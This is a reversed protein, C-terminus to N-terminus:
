GHGISLDLQDLCVVSLLGAPNPWGGWCLEAGPRLNALADFALCASAL